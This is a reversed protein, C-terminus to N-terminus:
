FSAAARTAQEKSILPTPKSGAPHKITSVIDTEAQDMPPFYEDHIVYQFKESPSNKAKYRLLMKYGDFIIQTQYNTGTM